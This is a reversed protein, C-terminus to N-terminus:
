KMAMLDPREIDVKVKYKIQNSNILESNAKRYEKSLSELLAIAETPKMGNIVEKIKERKTM